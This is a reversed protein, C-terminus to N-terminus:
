DCGCAPWVVLSTVPFSTGKLNRIYIVNLTYTLNSTRKRDLVINYELVRQVLVLIANLFAFLVFFFIMEFATKFINGM